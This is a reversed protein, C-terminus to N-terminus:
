GALAREAAENPTMEDPHKPPTDRRPSMRGDLGPRIGQRQRLQKELEVRRAHEKKLMGLYIPAAAGLVLAEAQAEPDDATFLYKVREQVKGVGSNWADNGDVPKMIFTGDSMVKELSQKFLQARANRTLMGQQRQQQIALTEAMAKHNKLAEGRAREVQDHQMLLPLIAVAAEPAEQNLFEIRQKRSMPVLQEALTEDHEFEKLTAKIEGIINQKPRNFQDQFRPDSELSVQGLKDYAETLQKKLAEIAQVHEPNDRTEVHLQTTESIKQKAAKLEERMALFAKHQRDSLRLDKISDDDSAPPPVDPAAPPDDLPEAPAILGDPLEFDVPASDDKKNTASPKQSKNPAPAAPPTASKTPKPNDPPTDALGLADRMEAKEAAEIETENPM